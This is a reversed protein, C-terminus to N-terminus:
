GQALARKVTAVSTKCATATSEYRESPVMGRRLAWEARIEEYRLEKGSTAKRKDAAAKNRERALENTTSIKKVDESM